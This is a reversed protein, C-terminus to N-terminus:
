ETEDDRFIKIANFVKHEASYNALAITASAVMEQKFQRGAIILFVGEKKKSESILVNKKQRYHNLM